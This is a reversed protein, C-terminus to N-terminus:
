VFDIYNSLVEKLEDRNVPKDIFSDAGYEVAKNKEDGFVHASMVIITIDKKKERIFKIIELGHVRPLKLDLLLIRPEDVSKIYELGDEGDSFSTYKLGWKKIFIELLFLSSHDDEVIIIENNLM